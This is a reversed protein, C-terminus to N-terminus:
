QQLEGREVETRELLLVPALKSHVNKHMQEIKTLGSRAEAGSNPFAETNRFKHQIEFTFSKCLIRKRCSCRKVSSPHVRHCQERSPFTNIKM